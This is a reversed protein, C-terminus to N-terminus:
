LKSANPDVRSVRWSNDASQGIHPMQPPPVFVKRLHRYWASDSLRRQVAYYRKPPMLLAVALTFTKFLRHALSAEPHSVRYLKWETNVTDWPWGGLTTLRLREAVAATYAVVELAVKRDIGHSEIFGVMGAALVSLSQQKRCERELDFTATQFANAEHMRYYTLAPQLIQVNSLVAALTFLYEDAQVRIAEPITGIMRLLERRITMRSTGLFSGRRRLLRAGEVTNAKFRFGDRLLEAQETGDRHVITIGHGVIGVSHDAAMADAVCSLKNRAWFDDGDLFAVIGGRAESIGLNFASAQGGNPKRLLRVRPAFKRVIEPTRDTSGDDVVLIEMESAPFDQEVVSVLAEEIFREHNYTDVLITVNPKM